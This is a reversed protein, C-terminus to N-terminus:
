GVTFFTQHYTWGNQCWVPTHYVSLCIAVAYDVSHPPFISRCFCSAVMDSGVTQHVVLKSFSIAFAELKNFIASISLDYVV